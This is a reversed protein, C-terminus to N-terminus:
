SCTCVGGRLLSRALVRAAQAAVSWCYPHGESRPIGRKGSALYASRRLSGRAVRCPGFRVRSERCRSLRRRDMRRLVLRPLRPPELVCSPRAPPESRDGSAPRRMACTQNTITTATGNITASRVLIGAASRAYWIRAPSMMSVVRVGQEAGVDERERHGARLPEVLLPARLQEQGRGIPQAAPVRMTRMCAASVDTANANTKRAHRRRPTEVRVAASRLTAPKQTARWFRAM